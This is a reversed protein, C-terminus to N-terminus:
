SPRRTATHALRMFPKELVLFVLACFALIAATLPLVFVLFDTLWYGGSYLRFLAVTGFHALAFHILYITYCMGGILAMFRISLFRRWAASNQSLWIVIWVAICQVQFAYNSGQSQGFLFLAFAALAMVYSQLPKMGTVVPYLVKSYAVMMGALFFHFCSLLSLRLHMQELPAFQSILSFLLMLVGMILMPRSFRLLASLFLPLILYFQVEIELSWAVPNIPSFDNYVINHVYFLSALFNGWGVRPDHLILAQVVFFAVLVLIYPPEIRLLRRLFYGRTDFAAQQRNAMFYPMSLIYGSIGFFLLVGFSGSNLLNFLGVDESWDITGYNGNRVVSLLIHSLVVPIIALFRLGDIEPQYPGSSIRRFVSRDTKM